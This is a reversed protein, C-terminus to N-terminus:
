GGGGKGGLGEGGGDRCRSVVEDEATIATSVITVGENVITFALDFEGEGGGPDHKGGGRRGM